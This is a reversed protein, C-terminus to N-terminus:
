TSPKKPPPKVQLLRSLAERFSLPKFSIPKSRDPLKKRKGSEGVKKRSM